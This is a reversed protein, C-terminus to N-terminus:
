DQDQYGCRPGSGGLGQAGIGLATSRTGYDGSATRVVRNQPGRKRLEHIDISDDAIGKALVAAKGCYRLARYGAARRVWGAGQDTVTKVVWDVIPRVTSCSMKRKNRLAVRPRWHFEVTDGPGSTTFLQRPLNDQHQTARKGASRRPISARLVNELVTQLGPAVAQNIM